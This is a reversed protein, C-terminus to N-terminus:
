CTCSYNCCTMTNDTNCHCGFDSMNDTQCIQDRSQTYCGESGYGGFVSKAQLNSIIEKKFSLRLKKKKM